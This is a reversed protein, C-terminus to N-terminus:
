GKRFLLNFTVQAYEGLLVVQDAEITKGELSQGRFTRKHVTEILQTVFIIYGGTMTVCWKNLAANPPLM